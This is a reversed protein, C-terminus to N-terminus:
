KIRNRQIEELTKIDFKIAEEIAAKEENWRKIRDIEAKMEKIEEREARLVENEEIIRKFDPSDTIDLSKEITLFPVYKKYIEKLKEPSARFYAARTNDLEHGMFFEVHFSDCGANLLISNFYKRMTHSRVTNYTGRKTDKKAKASMARFMKQMVNGSLKRQEESHNELYSDDLQRVIFLYGDDSVVRQKLLQRKRQWTAAKVERNRYELYEWIARSCEPSLFTIFEVGTKTRQIKFTTIGTEHDYGKRFQGITLNQIEVSSLGSSVGTLMIAKELPDCVKLVAQLDEKTPIGTNEERVRAKRREGQLKPLEIDFSQYFSRVAGMRGRITFDALGQDVMSSRFNILRDKIKRDRMRVKNEEEQDAEAILEYPTLGTNETYASLAQTYTLETNRRPKLNSLWKKVTSDQRLETIKM